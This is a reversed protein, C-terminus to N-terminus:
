IVAGTSYAPYGGYGASYAPAYAATAPMAMSMAPAAAYATTTPMAMAMSYSPVVEMM